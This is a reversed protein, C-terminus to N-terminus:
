CESINIEDFTRWHANETKDMHEKYEQVKSEMRGLFHELVNLQYIPLKSSDFIFIYSGNLSSEYSKDEVLLIDVNNIDLRHKSYKGQFSITKATIKEVKFKQIIM